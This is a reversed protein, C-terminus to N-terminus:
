FLENIKNVISEFINEDKTTRLNVDGGKPKVTVVHDTLNSLVNLPVPGESIFVKKPRINDHCLNGINFAFSVIKSEFTALTDNFLREYDEDKALNRNLHHMPKTTEGGLMTQPNYQKLHELFAMGLLQTDLVIVGEANPILAHEWGKNRFGDLTTKFTKAPWQMELTSPRESFADKILKVREESLGELVVWVPVKYTRDYYYM